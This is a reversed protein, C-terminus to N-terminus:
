YRIETEVTFFRYDSFVVNLKYMCFKMGGAAASSYVYSEDVSFQSPFRIGNKECGFDGTLVIDPKFRRDKASQELSAFNELSEQSWAIRLISADDRSVWVTGFLYGLWAGPKPTVKVAIAKRGQIKAEGMIEYTNKPQWEKGLLVVPGFVLKEFSFGSTGLRANKEQRDRGNERLLTLNEQTKGNPGRVLQYDYVFENKAIVSNGALQYEYDLISAFQQYSTSGRYVKRLRPRFVEERMTEVCVFNLVANELKECYDAGKTLITQLNVPGDSAPGRRPESSLAFAALSLAMAGFLIAGRRFVIM